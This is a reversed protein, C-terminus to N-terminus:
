GRRDADCGLQTKLVPQGLAWISASATVPQRRCPELQRFLLEHEQAEGEEVLASRRRAPRVTPRASSLPTPTATQRSSISRASRRWFNTSACCSRCRSIAFTFGNDRLAEVTQEMAEAGSADIETVAAADLVFWRVPTPAAEVLAQVQEPFLTANAIYLPAGFYYIMLGVIPPLGAVEAYGINLPIMLAALTV